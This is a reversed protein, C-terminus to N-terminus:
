RNGRSGPKFATPHGQSKKGFGSQTSGPKPRNGKEASAAADAVLPSDPGHHVEPPKTGKPTVRGSTKSKSSRSRKATM